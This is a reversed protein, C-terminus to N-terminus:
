VEKKAYTTLNPSGFNVPCKMCLKRTSDKQKNKKKKICLKLVLLLNEDLIQQSFVTSTIFLIIIDFQSRGCSSIFFFDCFYQSM